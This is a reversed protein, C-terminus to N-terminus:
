PAIIVHRSPFVEGIRKGDPPWNLRKMDRAMRLDAGAVVFPRDPSVSGCNPALYMQTQILEFCIKPCDSLRFPDGCKLGM